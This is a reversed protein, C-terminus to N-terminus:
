YKAKVKSIIRDRNKLTNKVWWKFDPEKEINNSVAFEALDIPNIAKLDKLPVLSM